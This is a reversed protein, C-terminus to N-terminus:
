LHKKVESYIWVGAGIGAGVVVVKGVTGLEQELQALWGEDKTKALAAAAAADDASRDSGADVGFVNNYADQSGPDAGGSGIVREVRSIEVLQDMGPFTGRSAELLDNVVEAASRVQTGPYLFDVTASVAGPTYPNLSVPPAILGYDAFINNLGDGFKESEYAATWYWHSPATFTVRLTDHYQLQDGAALGVYQPTGALM